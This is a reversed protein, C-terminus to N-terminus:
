EVSAAAVGSTFGIYNGNTPDYQTCIAMQEAYDGVQNLVWSGNVSRVLTQKDGLELKLAVIRLSGSSLSIQVRQDQVYTNPAENPITVTLTEMRMGGTAFTVQKQYDVNKYLFQLTFTASSDTYGYITLTITKNRLKEPNNIPQIIRCNNTNGNKELMTYYGNLITIKHDSQLTNWRDMIFQKGTGTYVTRGLRNVPNALYWNHILNPHCPYANEDKIQKLGQDVKDMNSNMVDIDYFESALPKELNYNTTYNPM